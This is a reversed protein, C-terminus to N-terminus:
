QIQKVTNGSIVGKVTPYTCLNIRYINSKSGGNILSPSHTNLLVQKCFFDGSGKQVMANQTSVKTKLLTFIKDLAMKNHM